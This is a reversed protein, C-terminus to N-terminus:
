ASVEVVVVLTIRPARGGSAIKRATLDRYAADHEDAHHSKVGSVIDGSVGRGRFEYVFADSDEALEISHALSM